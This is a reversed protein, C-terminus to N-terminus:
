KAEAADHEFDQAMSEIMVNAMDQDVRLQERVNKLETITDDYEFGYEDQLKELQTAALILSNRAQAYLRKMERMEYTIEEAIDM